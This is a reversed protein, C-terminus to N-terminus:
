RRFGMGVERVEQAAEAPRGTSTVALGQRSSTSSVAQQDGVDLAAAPLAENPAVPEESRQEVLEM